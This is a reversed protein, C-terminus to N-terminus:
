GVRRIEEGEVVFGAALGQAALLRQREDASLRRKRQQRRASKVKSANNRREILAAMAPNHEPPTERAKIIERHATNIEDLHTQVYAISPGCYRGFGLEVSVFWSPVDANAIVRHGKSTSCQRTVQYERWARKKLPQLSTKARM